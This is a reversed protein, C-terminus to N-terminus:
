SEMPIITRIEVTGGMKIIPCGKALETAEELSNAKVVMNGGVIHEDAMLVGDAITLDPQVKKGEFGLQYTGVLKEAIAINGIFSGWQQKMAAQESATPKADFNPKFRFLMM